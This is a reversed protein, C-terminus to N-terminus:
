RAAETAPETEERAPTQREPAAQSDLGVADRFVESLRRRVFGFQEVAGANRALDLVTQADERRVLSITASGGTIGVVTAGAPLGGSGRSLGSIWRAQDDGAVRVAVRLQGGEALEDVTGHAVLAGRDIIAVSTCLHEVLDLQHSSFLMTVGAAARETLVESMADVGAPDLGSFPEDLVLLEPEHVLAAALQVRQQNGLSLSEIKEQERGPLGLRDCWYRAASVARARSLGHLRALYELQEAVRMSPYLGREEPMYGIRRRAAQDIPAGNWRVAGGDLAQVGVIARMATTKGAGNPGLFGFVEGRPVTFSLGDLAITDGFRRRLETLELQGDYTV